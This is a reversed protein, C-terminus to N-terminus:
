CGRLAVIMPEDFLYVIFDHIEIISGFFDAHLHLDLLGTVRARNCYSYKSGGNAPVSSLLCRELNPHDVFIGDARNDREDRSDVFYGVGHVMVFFGELTIEEGSAFGHDKSRIETINM